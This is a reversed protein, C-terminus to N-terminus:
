QQVFAVAAEEKTEYSEASIAGTFSEDAPHKSCGAFAFVSALALVLVLLLSLFKRGTM